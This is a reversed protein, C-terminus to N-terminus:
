GLAEDVREYHEPCAYHVTVRVADEVAYWDSNGHRQETLGARWLEAATGGGTPPDCAQEEAWERDFSELGLAAVDAEVDGTLELRGTAGELTVVETSVEAAPASPPEESAPTCSTAAALLLAAGALWRSPRSHRQPIM